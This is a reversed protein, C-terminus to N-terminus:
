PVTYPRSTELSIILRDMDPHFDPDHRVQAGNRYAFDKLDAPLDEERPMMAGKVLLPIVPISRKLAAEIEIRVFDGPDDIRRKGAADVTHLWHDGIIVLVSDCQEVIGRLTVRFDVGFPISDVDKFISEKGFHEVLRDYIRGTIDASDDRRYSIFITRAPMERPSSRQPGRAEANRARPLRFQGTIRSLRSRPIREEEAPQARFFYILALVILGLCTSMIGVLVGGVNPSANNAAISLLGMIVLGISVGLAAGTIAGPRASRGKRRYDATGLLGGAAACLLTVILTIMLTYRWTSNVLDSV